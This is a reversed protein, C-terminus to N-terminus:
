SQDRNLVSKNPTIYSKNEQLREEIKLAMNELNQTSVQVM